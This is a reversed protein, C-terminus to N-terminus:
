GAVSDGASQYNITIFDTTWWIEWIGVAVDVAPIQLFSTANNQVNAFLIQMANEDLRTVIGNRPLSDGARRIRICDGRNIATLDFIPVSKDITLSM